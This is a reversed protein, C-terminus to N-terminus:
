GKPQWLLAIGAVAVSGGHGDTEDSFWVKDKSRCSETHHEMWSEQMKSTLWQEVRYKQSSIPSTARMRRWRLKQDIYSRSGDSPLWPLGIRVAQFLLSADLMSTTIQQIHRMHIAKLKIRQFVDNFEKNEEHIKPVFDLVTQQYCYNQSCPQSM